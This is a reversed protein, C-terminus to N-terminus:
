ARGAERARRVRQASVRRRARYRAAIRRLASKRAVAERMLDAIVEGTDQRAFEREFADKVDKPVSVSLNAV